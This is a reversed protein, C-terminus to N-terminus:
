DVEMSILKRIISPHGIISDNTVFVNPNPIMKTGYKKLWKKAIRKRKNPRKPINSQILAMPSVYVRYGNYYGVV